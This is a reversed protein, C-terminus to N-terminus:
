IDNKYLHSRGRGRALPPLSNETGFLVEIMRAKVRLFIQEDLMTIKKVLRKTDILRIQSLIASADQEKTAHLSKKETNWGDFDKPTSTM